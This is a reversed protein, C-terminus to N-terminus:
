GGQSTEILHATTRLLQPLRHSAAPDRTQVSFGSGHVGNIIIMVVTDAQAAERAVTCLNDYKGPGAPM